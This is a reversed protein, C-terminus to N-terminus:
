DCSSSAFGGPWFPLEIPPCLASANDLFRNGQGIIAGSFPAGDTYTGCAISYVAVPRGCSSITNYSIEVKTTSGTMSIGVNCSEISNQVFRGETADTVLNWITIGSCCEAISSSEVSLRAGGQTVVADEFWRFSCGQVYASAGGEVLVGNSRDLTRTRNPGVFVSQRVDLQVGKEFVGSAEEFVVVGTLNGLLQCDRMVLNASGGVVIGCEEPPGEITVGVLVVTPTQSSEVYIAPVAWSSARLVVSSPDASDGRLTLSTSIRIAVDYVGPALEITDGDFAGAIAEDLNSFDEPVRIM